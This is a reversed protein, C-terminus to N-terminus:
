IICIGAEMIDRYIVVLNNATLSHNTPTDAPRNEDVEVKLDHLDLDKLAIEDVESPHLPIYQANRDNGGGM